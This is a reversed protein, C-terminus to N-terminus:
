PPRGSCAQKIKLIFYDLDHFGYSRRKVLKIKNNFGELQGSTIPYDHYALLGERHAKLSRAFDKLPGIGSTQAAAIWDDLFTEAAARNGCNWFQALDEKLLYVKNINENLELLRELRTKQKEDLRERTKLLLYKTGKLVDKGEAQAKHHEDIRVRDVVKRGYNQIVHYKDNVIAAKPARKHTVKEYPEWMDTCIAQIGAAVEPGIEDFFANLTAETRGEGVWVVRGRELDLVDTLYKHRKTYSIEDIALLRLGTYDPEAFQRQLAAKDIEKVTKWDLGLLEAVEAVSLHKCLEAVLEEFRHTCRAYPRAFGLNEVRVGCDPCVIRWKELVLFTNFEILGLDRISRAERDYREYCLQGCGSCVHVAVDRALLLDVHDEQFLVEEVTCNPLNVIRDIIPDSM